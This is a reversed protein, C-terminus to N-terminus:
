KGNGEIGHARIKDYLTSRSLGLLEAAGNKGSLKGDTMRLVTLIYQKELERVTPLDSFLNRMLMSSHDLTCPKDPFFAESAAHEPRSASPAHSGFRDKDFIFEAKGNRSFIVAREVVNKLERINGPWSYTRLTLADSPAISPVVSRNRRAFIDLYYRLLADIDEPRERLPPIFLPIVCIRYFLDNRFAGQQMEAFLNRNTAVILRFDSHLMRTAGLRMFNREQLLRLLKVQIRPSIDPVEDIFLTGMNAMELLGIKRQYAGTFAGREYGLMESEFLEEPLSSLNVAVFPGSRGSKEHIRRAVLEKGVGSEGCILVSASTRAATDVEELVHRMAESHYIIPRVDSEPEHLALIRSTEQVRRTAENWRQFLEGLYEGFTLLFADNIDEACPFSDGEAYLAYFQGEGDPIPICAVQWDFEGTDPLNLAERTIYVPVGELCEKILYLPFTGSAGFVQEHTMHVAHLIQPLGGGEGTFLCWRSAGLAEAACQLVEQVFSETNEPNLRLLSKLFSHRWASAAHPAASNAGRSSPLLTELEHSWYIGLPFFHERCPWAEIAYRLAQAQEGAALSARALVASAKCKEAPLQQLKFFARSKLLPPQVDGLAAGARLLMDGRIRNAVARLLPNDGAICSQVEKELAYGPIDPLGNCRFLHLMDLFWPSSYGWLYGREGAARVATELVRHGMHARGCLVHYHALATCAAMWCQVNKNIGVVLAADVHELAEDVKGVALYVTALHAHLWCKTACGASRAHSNLCTKLISVALPLDGSQVAALAAFSSAFAGQPITNEGTGADIPRELGSALSFDELAQRTNGQFYNFISIYPMADALFHAKDRVEPPPLQHKRGRSFRRRAGSTESRDPDDMNHLIKRVFLITDLIYQYSTSQLLCAAGRAKLLVSMRRPPLGRFDAMSYARIVLEIFLSREGEDARRVSFRHLAQLITEVAFNLAWIEGSSQRSQAWILLLEVAELARGNRLRLCAPLVGGPCDNETLVSTFERVVPDDAASKTAQWTSELCLALKKRALAELAQETESLTQGCLHALQACEYRQPETMNLLFLLRKEQISHLAIPM